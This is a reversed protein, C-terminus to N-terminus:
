KYEKALWNIHLQIDRWEKNSESNKIPQKMKLSNFQRREEIEVWKSNTYIWLKSHHKQAM